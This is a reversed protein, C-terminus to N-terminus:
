PAGELLVAPDCAAGQRLLELHLHAGTARGTQGVTGLAQGAQVVEGPRVYLYQLHAYRTESGDPHLLRLYNGYSTSAAAVTVVGAQVAKVTTGEACALDIGYHFATKGTFPDSRQGYPDSIRWVTTDLPFTWATKRAARVPLALAALLALFLVALAFKKWRSRKTRKEPLKKRRTRM